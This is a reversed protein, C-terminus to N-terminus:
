EGTVVVEVLDYELEMLQVKLPYPRQHNVRLTDQFTKYGPYAVQILYNGSDPVQIMGNNETVYFGYVPKGKEPLLTMHVSLDPIARGDKNSIFLVYYQGSVEQLSFAALVTFLIVLKKIM